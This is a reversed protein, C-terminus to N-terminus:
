WSQRIPSYYSCIAIDWFDRKSLGRISLGAWGLCLRQNYDGTFIQMQRMLDCSRYVSITHQCWKKVGLGLEERGWDRASLCESIIETIPPLAPSVFFPLFGLFPSPLKCGLADHLVPDESLACWCRQAGILSELRRKLRQQRRHQEGGSSQKRGLVGREEHRDM